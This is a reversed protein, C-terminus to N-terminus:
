MQALNMLNEGTDVDRSMNYRRIEWIIYYNYYKLFMLSSGVVTSTKATQAEIFLNAGFGFLVLLIAFVILIPQIFFRGTYTQM